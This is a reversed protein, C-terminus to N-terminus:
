RQKVFKSFRKATFIALLIKLFDPIIFPIVCWLLVTILGATGSNKTYIYMFWATGFVYCVILGIVMAIFMVFTKNGFFKIILGTTIASFFFGILYGGTNGLLYGFGSGFGSFIPAGLAGLLLYLLVAVTGRYVGFLAVVAFIAFTQMTFPVSAPITIWSCLAIITISMAIYTIDYVTFLARNKSKQSVQKM